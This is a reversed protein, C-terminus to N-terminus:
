NTPYIAFFAEIDASFLNFNQINLRLYKGDVTFNLKRAIGALINITNSWRWNVVGAANHVVGEQVILNVDLDSYIKGQLYRYGVVAITEGTLTYGKGLVLGDQDLAILPRQRLILVHRSM